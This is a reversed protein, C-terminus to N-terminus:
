DYDPIRQPYQNEDDEDTIEQYQQALEEEEEIRVEDADSIYEPGDNLRSGGNNASHVRKLVEAALKIALEKQADSLEPNQELEPPVPEEKVMESTIEPKSNFIRFVLYLAAIGLIMPILDFLAM